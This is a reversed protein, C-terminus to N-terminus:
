QVTWTTINHMCVKSVGETRKLTVKILTSDMHYYQAHMSWTTINHMCVKSVGETRKLTVKILTSDMHYYQAHM